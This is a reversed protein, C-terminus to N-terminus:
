LVKKALCKEFSLGKQFFHDSGLEPIAPLLWGADNKSKLKSKLKRLKRLKRGFGWKLGREQALDTLWM